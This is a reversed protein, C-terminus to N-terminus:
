IFKFLDMNLISSHSDAAILKDNKIILLQPSEHRLNYKSTIENSIERYSLLDLYYIDMQDTDFEFNREFQKKITISTFCRTSHKFIGVTKKSNSIEKLQRLEMLPIWKLKLVVEKSSEGFIKKLIGM